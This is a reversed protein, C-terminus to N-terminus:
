ISLYIVEVLYNMPPSFRSIISSGCFFGHMTKGSVPAWWPIQRGGFDLAEPIGSWLISGTFCQHTTDHLNSKLRGNYLKSSRNARGDECRRSYRCFFRLLARASGTDTALLPILRDGSESLNGGKSFPSSAGGGQRGYGCSRKFALRSNQM